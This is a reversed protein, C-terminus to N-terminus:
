LGVNPSTGFSGPKLPQFVIETSPGSALDALSAARISDTMLPGAAASSM